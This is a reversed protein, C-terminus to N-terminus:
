GAGGARLASRLRGPAIGCLSSVERTMHSQDAYGTASAVDVLRRGRDALGAVARECRVLRRLDAVSLATERRLARRLRREGVGLRDALAAAPRNPDREIEFAGRRAVVIRLSRTAAEVGSDNSPAAAPFDVAVPLIM